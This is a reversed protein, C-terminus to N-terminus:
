TFRCARATPPGVTGRANRLSFRLNRFSLSSVDFWGQELYPGAFHNVFGYQKEVPVRAIIGTRGVTDVGDFTSMSSHLFVTNVLQLQILHSLYSSAFPTPEARIIENFSKPDFVDYMATPTYSAWTNSFIPDTLEEDSIVKIQRGTSMVIQIRGTQSIYTVQATADVTRLKAQMEAALEVGGYNGYELKFAYKGIAGGNNIVV